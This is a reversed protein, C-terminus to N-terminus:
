PFRFPTRNPNLEPQEVVRFAKFNSRKLAKEKGKECIYEGFLFTLIPAYLAASYMLSRFLVNANIDSYIGFTVRYGDFLLAATFLALSMTLHYYSNTRIQALLALGHLHLHQWSLRRCGSLSRQAVPNQFHIFVASCSAFVGSERIRHLRPIRHRHNRPHGPNRLIVQQM